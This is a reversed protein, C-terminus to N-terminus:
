IEWKFCPVCRDCMGEYFLFFCGFYASSMYEYTGLHSTFSYDSNQCWQLRLPSLFASFMKLTRNLVHCVDTVWQTTFFSSVNLQKIPRPMVPTQVRSRLKTWRQAVRMEWLRFLNGSNQFEYSQHSQIHTLHPDTLWIHTLCLSFKNSTHCGTHWTVRWLLFWFKM